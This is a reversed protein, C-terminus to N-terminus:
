CAECSKVDGYMHIVIRLVKGQIGHKFLKLWMANRYIIDFCKKLDIFAVYSRKNHNLFHEVVANLAFIADVTSKGKRFGFQADSISNYKECIKYLTYYDRKEM